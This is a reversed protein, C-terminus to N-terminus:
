ACGAVLLWPVMNRRNKGLRSVSHFVRCIHLIIICTELYDSLSERVAQYRALDKETKDVEDLQNRINFTIVEKIEVM